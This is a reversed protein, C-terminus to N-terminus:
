KNAKKIMQELEKILENISDILKKLNDERTKPEVQKKSKVPM